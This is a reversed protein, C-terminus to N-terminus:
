QEYVEELTFNFSAGEGKVAEAWIKGGHRLIIRQVTALGVGTGPFENQSHLRQFPGFLNGADDPNFGVGNDSISLYDKGSDTVRKFEIRPQEIKSTFKIANDFLNTLVVELLRRDGSVVIGPQIIFEINQQPYCSALRATITGAVASLDVPEKQLEVRTVRSLDLLDDILKGMLQVEVMIRDLYGTVPKALSTGAEEKVLYSWGSISRLPTRLDHSVSYAFSELELNSAELEATRAKVRAELSRNLVVVKQEARKRKTIDQVVTIVCPIGDFVLSECSIVAPFLRGNKRRFVTEMRDVCGQEIIISVIKNRDAISGWLNLDITTKGESEAKTFGTMTYFTDNVEIISGDSARTITIADPINHFAKAYKEESKALADRTKELEIIDQELEVVLNRNVLLFLGFTLAIFLMQYTLLALADFIGSQFFDAGPPIIFDIFIRASIVVSYAAFVVGIFRSFEKRKERTTFLMLASIQLCLLLLAISGNQTRIYLSPQIYTFYVQITVYIGLLIWNPFNVRKIGTYRQLGIYLFITGAIVLSNAIVISLLDPILGRLAVLVIATFQFAFEFLWLGLGYSRNRNQRWLFWIVLLCIANSITYGFMLSRIDITNM